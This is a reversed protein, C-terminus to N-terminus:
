EVRVARLLPQFGSRPNRRRKQSRKGRADNLAIKAMELIGFLTVDPMNPPHKVSISDREEDYDILIQIM